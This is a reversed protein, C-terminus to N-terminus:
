WQRSGKDSPNETSEVHAIVLHLGFGLLFAGIRKLIRNLQLSGSRGKSSVSICVYSDSLQFIRKDCAKFRLIQHKIGLLVAELELVNIYSKSKWQKAFEDKWCWWTASVAQRPFVKPNTFEGTVVRVDSGTHNTKRRLARNLQEM